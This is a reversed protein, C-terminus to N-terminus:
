GVVGLFCFGRGVSFREREHFIKNNVGGGRWERRVHFMTIFSFGQDPNNFYGAIIGIINGSSPQEPTQEAIISGYQAVKAVYAQLDLATTLPPNFDGSVSVLYKEFDSQDLFIM